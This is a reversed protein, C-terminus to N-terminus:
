KSKYRCRKYIRVCKKYIQRRSCKNYLLVIRMTTLWNTSAMLNHTITIPFPSQINTLNLSLNSLNEKLNIVPNIFLIKCLFLNHIFKCKKSDLLKTSIRSELIIIMFTRSSNQLKFNKLYIAQTIWLISKTELVTTM